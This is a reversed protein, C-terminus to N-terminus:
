KRRKKYEADDIACRFGVSPSTGGDDVVWRASSVCESARSRFSGGCVFTQRDKEPGSKGIDTRDTYTAVLEAANGAMGIVGEPTADDAFADVPSTDKPEVGAHSYRREGEEAGWPFERAEKEGGGAAREWEDATPLRKGVSEAYAFAQALTVGTVPHRERGPPMEPDEDASLTWGEPLMARRASPGLALLFAHYQGCTVEYKDIWFAKVSRQQRKNQKEPIDATWGTWPGVWIRTRDFLVMDDLPDAPPAKATPEPEKPEPAAPPVASEPAPEPKKTAAELRAQAARFSAVAPLNV